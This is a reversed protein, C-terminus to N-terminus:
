KLTMLFQQAFNGGRFVRAYFSEMDNATGGGHTVFFWGGTGDMGVQETPYDPATLFNIWLINENVDEDIGAIPGAGNSVQWIGHIGESPGNVMVQIGDFVPNADEGMEASAPVLEGNVVNESRFGSVMTQDEVVINGTTQEDRELASINLSMDSSQLSVAPLM